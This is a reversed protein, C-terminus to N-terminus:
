FYVVLNTLSPQLSLGSPARFAAERPYVCSSMHDEAAADSKVALM